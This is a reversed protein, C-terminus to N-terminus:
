KGAGETEALAADLVPQIRALTSRFMEIGDPSVRREGAQVAGWKVAGAADVLAKTVRGVALRAFLLAEAVADPWDCGHAARSVGCRDGARQEREDQARMAGRCEELKAALADARRANLQLSALNAQGERMWGDRQDTMGALSSEAKEARKEAAALDAILQGVTVDSVPEKSAPTDDFLEKWEKSTM